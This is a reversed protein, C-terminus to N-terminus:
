NPLLKRTWHKITGKISRKDMFEAAQKAHYLDLASEAAALEKTVVLLQEQDIFAVVGEEALGHVLERQEHETMYSIDPLLPTLKTM